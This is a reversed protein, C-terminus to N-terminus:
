RRYVRTLLPHSLYYSVVEEVEGVVQSQRLQYYIDLNWHKMLDRSCAEFEAAQIGM